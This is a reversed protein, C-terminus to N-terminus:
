PASGAATDSTPKVPAAGQSSARSVTGGAGRARMTKEPPKKKYAGNNVMSRGNEAPENKIM